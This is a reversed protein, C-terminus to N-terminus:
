KTYLLYFIFITFLFIISILLFSPSLITGIFTWIIIISIPFYCAMITGTGKRAFIKKRGLIGDIEKIYDKDKVDKLAYKKTSTFCGFNENNGYIKGELKRAEEEACTLHVFKRNLTLLWLFGIVIGAFCFALA